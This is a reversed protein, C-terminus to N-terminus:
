PPQDPSGSFMEVTLSNFPSTKINRAHVGDWAGINLTCAALANIQQKFSNITGNKGGTVPFGLARIFGCLSDEVHIVPSNNRIAESCVHLLMLRARSGYPLPQDIWEGEPSILKGASVSLKM